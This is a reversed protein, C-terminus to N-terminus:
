GLFISKSWNLYAAEPFGDVEVDVRRAAEVEASAAVIAMGTGSQGILPAAIFFSGLQTTQPSFQSFLFLGRLSRHTRGRLLSTYCSMRM